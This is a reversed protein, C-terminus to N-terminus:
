FGKIEVFQTITDLSFGLFIMLITWLIFLGWKVTKTLLYGTIFGVSMMAINKSIM